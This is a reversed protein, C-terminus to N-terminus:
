CIYELHEFIQGFSGESRRDAITQPDDVGKEVVDLKGGSHVERIICGAKRAAQVSLALVRVLVPIEASAM